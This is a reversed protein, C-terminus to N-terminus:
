QVLKKGMLFNIERQFDKFTDPCHILTYMVHCENCYKSRFFKKVQHAKQVANRAKVVLVRHPQQCWYQIMMEINWLTEWQYLDKVDDLTALTVYFDCEVVLNHTKLVDLFEQWLEKEFFDPKLLFLTRKM